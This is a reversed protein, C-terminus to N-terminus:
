AGTKLQGWTGHNEVALWNAFGNEVDLWDRFGLNVGGGVGLILDTWTVNAANMANWSAFVDCQDQFRSDCIGESTGVPRDVTQYPINVIRPQRRHDDLIRSVTATAIAMYRDPIGYQPPGEFFLPSGPELLTLLADRDTFLKSILKIATAADRRQRNVPIPRRANTPNVVVANADYTEIDMAEFVIGATPDCLTTDPFLLGILRDNCPRVPDRLWFKGNSALTLSATSATIASPDDNVTVALLEFPVTLGANTNGALRQARLGIQGGSLTSDTTTLSWADPEAAGALWIKARLTSGSAEFRTNFISGPAYTAVSSAAVLASIAGGVDEAISIDVNGATTMSVLFEYWNNADQRRLVTAVTYPAVTATAPATFSMFVSLNLVNVTTMNMNRSAATDALVMTGQTGNVDYETAVGGAFTWAQGSNATGWSDSVTRAFDDFIENSSTITGGDTTYFFPTDFPMETDWFIAQGGSLEQYEGLATCPNIYTRLPATAGTSVTTRIVRACTVWDADAWNVQVLVRGLAPFPYANIIPM